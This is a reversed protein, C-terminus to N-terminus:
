NKKKKEVNEDSSFLCVITMLAMDFRFSRARVNSLKIRVISVPVSESYSSLIEQILNTSIQKNLTQRNHM